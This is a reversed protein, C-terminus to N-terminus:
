RRRRLLLHGEPLDPADVREFRTMLHRAVAPRLAAFDGRAGHIVETSYLVWDIDGDEIRAIMEADSEGQGARIFFIGWVPSSRELLPYYISRYPLILLPDDLPVRRALAEELQELETALRSPLRLSEGAADYTAYEVGAHPWIGRAELAPRGIELSVGATTMALLGGIGWSAVHKLKESLLLPMALLALLLPHIAQALHPLGARTTAHHLYGLALCISATFLARSALADAPSKWIAWLGMPIAVVMVCYMLSMCWLVVAWPSPVMEVQVLTWPWPIPSPLPSLDTLSRAFAEAFGPVIAVMGLLPSFGLLTGGAFAALLSPMDPTRRKGHLIALALLEGGGCYLGHNRGIFASFGLSLGLLFHRRRTPAEFVRVVLYVAALALSPEFLKHRPYMWVWFLLGIGVLAVPNRTVRRAALLGFSLGLTQFLVLSRRIGLVGDGFLWSWSACWYYRGPDYSQFDRLPVEGTLTRQVGYWLYGEDYLDLGVNGTLVYGGWALASAIAVVLAAISRDTM